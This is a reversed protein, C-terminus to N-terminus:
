AVSRGAPVFVRRLHFASIGHVYHPARPAPLLAASRFVFRVPESSHLIRWVRRAAGLNSPRFGLTPRPKGALQRAGALRGETGLGETAAVIAGAATLTASATPLEASRTTAAGATETAATTAATSRTAAAGAKSNSSNNRSSLANRSCRSRNSGNNSSHQPQQARQPQAQKQQQQQQRQQPQQARQPGGRDQKGSNGQKDGKQDGQAYVAVMTGFFLCIGAASTSRIFRM